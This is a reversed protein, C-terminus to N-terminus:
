DAACEQTGTRRPVWRVSYNCILSKMKKMLLAQKRSEVLAQLQVAWCSSIYVKFQVCQHLVSKMEFNCVETELCCKRQLMINVLAMWPSVTEWEKKKREAFARTWGWVDNGPSLVEREENQRVLRQAHRSDPLCHFVKNWFRPASFFFLFLPKVCAYISIGLILCQPRSTFPLNPLATHNIM